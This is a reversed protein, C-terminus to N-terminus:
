LVAVGIFFPEGIGPPRNSRIPGIGRRFISFREAFVNQRRFRSENATNASFTETVYRSHSRRVDRTRWNPVPKLHVKRPGPLDVMGVRIVLARVPVVLLLSATSAILFALLGASM